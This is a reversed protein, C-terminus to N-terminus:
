ARVKALSFPLADVYRESSSSGSDKWLLVFSNAAIPRMAMAERLEAHLQNELEIDRHGTFKIQSLKSFIIKDGIMEGM